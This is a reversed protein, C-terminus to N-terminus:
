CALLDASFIEWGESLILITYSARNCSEDTRACSRRALVPSDHLLAYHLLVRREPLRPVPKAAARPAPPPRPAPRRPKGGTPGRRPPARRRCGATRRSRRSWRRCPRSRCRAPAEFPNVGSNGPVLYVLNRLVRAIRVYWFMINLSTKEGVKWRSVNGSDFFSAPRVNNLM